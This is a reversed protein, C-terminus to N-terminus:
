LRLSVEASSMKVINGNVFCILRGDDAVDVAVAKVTGDACNLIVDRGFWDIFSKYQEVTYSQQLNEILTDRVLEVDFDEGAAQRMSIAIDRLDRSFENNVNIGMGVISRVVKGGCFTNEILTGCIKKGNVLVDNAWRIIPSLGFRQLTKCVATCSDIMVKFAAEAALPNHRMVSIYLGGLDSSFSRGKTGRGSTQRKATVIIDEGSDTRKCYENTSDTVELEIIKMSKM